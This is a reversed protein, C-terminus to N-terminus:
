DFELDALRQGAFDDGVQQGLVEFQDADRIERRACRFPRDLGIEQKHPSVGRRTALFSYNYFRDDHAGPPVLKADKLV